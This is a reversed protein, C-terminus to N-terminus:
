GATRRTCVYGKKICATSPTSCMVKGDELKCFSCRDTFEACDPTDHLFDQMSRMPEGEAWVPRAVCLLAFAFLCTMAAVFRRGMVTRTRKHLM